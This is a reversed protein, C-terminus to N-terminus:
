SSAISYMASALAVSEAPVLHMLRIPSGRLRANVGGGAITIPGNAMRLPCEREDTGLERGSVRQGEHIKGDGELGRITDILGFNM